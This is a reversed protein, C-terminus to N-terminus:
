SHNTAETPLSFKAHRGLAILAAENELLRAARKHQPFRSWFEARDKLFRVILERESMKFPPNPM